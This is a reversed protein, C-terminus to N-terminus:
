DCPSLDSAADPELAAPRAEGAWVSIDGCSTAVAAGDPLAAEGAVEFAVLTVGADTRAEIRWPPGGHAGTTIDDRQGGAPFTGVWEDNVYLLAPRDLGSDLGLTLAPDATFGACGALSGALLAAGLALASGRALRRRTTRRAPERM